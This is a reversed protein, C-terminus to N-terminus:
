LRANEARASRVREARASFAAMGDIASTRGFGGRHSLVPSTLSRAPCFVWPLREPILSSCPKRICWWNKKRTNCLHLTCFAVHLVASTHLFARGGGHVYQKALDRAGRTSACVPSDPHCPVSSFSRCERDAWALRSECPGVSFAAM